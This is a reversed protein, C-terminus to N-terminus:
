SNSALLQKQKHVLKLLKLLLVMLQLQRRLLKNLLLSLKKLRHQLKITQSVQKLPKFTLRLM